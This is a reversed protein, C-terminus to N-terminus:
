EVAPAGAITYKSNWKIKDVSLSSFLTNPQPKDYKGMLLNTGHSTCELQICTEVMINLIADELSGDKNLLPIIGVGVSGIFDKGANRYLGGMTLNDITASDYPKTNHKVYSCERKAANSTQMLTPHPTNRIIMENNDFGENASHFLGDQVTYEKQYIPGISNTANFLMTSEMILPPLHFHKNTANLKFNYKVKNDMIKAQATSHDPDVNTGAQLKDLTEGYLTEPKISNGMTVPALLEMNEWIGITTQSNANAYNVASTATLFPTRNGLNTIKIGVKTVRATHFVKTMDDYEKETLYFFINQWPLSHIYTNYQVDTGTKTYDAKTSTIAFTFKKKFEFHHVHRNNQVGGGIVSNTNAPVEMKGDEDQESVRPYIVGVFKELIKKTGIGGIALWKAIGDYTSEPAVESVEQIFESDARRISENFQKYNKTKKYYETIKHYQEDHKKAAADLQNVPPGRNLSNGPGLYKYGPLVLGRHEEEPQQAM